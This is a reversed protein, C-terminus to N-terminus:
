RFRRQREISDQLWSPLQSGKVGLQVDTEVGPHTFYARFKMVRLRWGDEKSRTSPTQSIGPTYLQGDKSQQVIVDRRQPRIKGQPDILGFPIIANAVVVDEFDPFPVPPHSSFRVTKEVPDFSVRGHTFGKVAKSGTQAMQVFFTGDQRHVFTYM